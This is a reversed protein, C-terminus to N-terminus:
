AAVTASATESWPGSANRPSVWRAMYHAQQGGQAQPFTLTTTGDSTSGIYRFAGPDSPAPAHPDTMAVFVEARHAGRPRARRTPTSEDVLRLEHTLRSAASVLVRPASAPATSRTGRPPRISIGMAARDADTTFPLAQVYAAIPRAQSELARRAADKAAKAARAQAQAATCAPFAARWALLAAELPILENTDLGHSDWFAKAGDYFHIMAAGFDADPRPIYDHPM